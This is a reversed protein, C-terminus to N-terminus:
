DKTIRIILIIGMLLGVVAFAFGFINGALMESKLGVNIMVVEIFGILVIVIIYRIIKPVRRNTILGSFFKDM